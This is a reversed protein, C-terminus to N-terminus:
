PMGGKKVKFKERDFGTKKSKIAETIQYEYFEIEKKDREIETKLKGIEIVKKCLTQTWNFLCQQHWAIDSVSM